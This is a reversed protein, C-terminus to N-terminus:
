KKIAAEVTVLLEQLAAAMPIPAPTSGGHVIVGHKGKQYRLYFDPGHGTALISVWSPPDKPLGLGAHASGWLMLLDHDGLDRRKNDIHWLYSKLTCEVAQGALMACGRSPIARLPALADIAPLLERAVALYGDGPTPKGMQITGLEM